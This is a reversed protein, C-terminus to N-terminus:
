RHRAPWELCDKRMYGEISQGRVKVVVWDGEADAVELGTRVPDGKQLTARIESHLSNSSYVAAFETRVRAELLDIASTQAHKPNPITDDVLDPSQATARMTTGAKRKKNPNDKAKNYLPLLETTRAPTDDRILWPKLQQWPVVVVLCYAAVLAVSTALLRGM